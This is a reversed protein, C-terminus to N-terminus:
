KTALRQSAKGAAVASARVENQRAAHIANSRMEQERALQDRMETKKVDEIKVAKVDIENMLIEAGDSVGYYALTNEVDHLETPFADGKTFYHDPVM